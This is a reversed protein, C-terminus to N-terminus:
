LTANELDVYLCFRTIEGDNETKEVSNDRSQRKM